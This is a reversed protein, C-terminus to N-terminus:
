EIRHKIARPRNRNLVSRSCFFYLATWPLSCGSLSKLLQIHLIDPCYHCRQGPFNVYTFICRHRSTLIRSHSEQSGQHQVYCDTGNTAPVFVCWDSVSVLFWLSDDNGPAADCRAAPFRHDHCYSSWAAGVLRGVLIEFRRQKKRFLVQRHITFLDPIPSIRGDV